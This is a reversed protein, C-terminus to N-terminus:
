RPPEVQVDLSDRTKRPRPLDADPSVGPASKIHRPAIARLGDGVTEAVPYLRAQTLWAPRRQMPTAANLLLAFGGIVVLGRVLGIFLGLIRDIGSLGATKQVRRTLVGGMLRLVIYSFVFLLLVAATNAIWGIRIAQRMIPSVFPLGVVAILASLVFAILTTVERTAGRALGVLASAVLILGAILDFLRM